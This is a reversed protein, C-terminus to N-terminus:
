TSLVQGAEQLIAAARSTGIRECGADIYALVEELTRIGGAAKVKVRGGSVARMLLVDAITAGGSGMGTSTKVFTAGAEIAMECVAQKEADTLYCTELIVKSTHGECAQVIAAIEKSVHTGLGSKLAGVNIVFDIETAGNAVADRTEFVKTTTTAQGLPLSIAACVGVQSGRLQAACFSVWAPNVAVTAVGQQLAGHCHQAVDIETADPRLLTTDIMRALSAVTLATSM